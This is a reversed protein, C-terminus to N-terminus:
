AVRTRDTEVATTDVAGLITVLPCRGRHREVEILGVNELSELGSYSARRGIGMERAKVPRWKVSRKRELSALHQLTLAVGLTKGGLQGARCLWAWSIPGQLFEGRRKQRSRRKPPRAPWEIAPDLKMNELEDSCIQTM